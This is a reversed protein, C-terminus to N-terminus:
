RLRGRKAERKERGSCDQAQGGAQPPGLHGSLPRTFVHTRERRSNRRDPQPVRIRIAIAKSGKRGRGTLHHARGRHPLSARRQVYVYNPARERRQQAFPTPAFPLLAIAMLILTGCGSRLFLRRSRVCTNVLGSM